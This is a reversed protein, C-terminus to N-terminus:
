GAIYGAHVIREMITDEILHNSSLIEDKHDILDYQVPYDEEEIILQAGFRKSVNIVLPAKLNATIRLPNLRVTVISFLAVDEIKEIQLFELDTEKLFPDYTRKIIQPNVVVFALAANDISQLWMFPADKEHSKLLIFRRWKEFGLIPGKFFIIKDEEIEISGFRTTLVNM